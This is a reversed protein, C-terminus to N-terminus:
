HSIAPVGNISDLSHPRGRLGYYMTNNDLDTRSAINGTTPYYTQSNTKVLTGNTYVNWSTLRNLNDYAMSDMMKNNVNHIDKRSQLNGKSDFIYELDIIGTSKISKPLGLIDYDFSTERNGRNERKLQGKANEELPEWITIGGPDKVSTLLGNVDYQNVTYYGSPYGHKWERGLADYETKTTFSKAGVTETVQTVRDFDDYTFTQTNKGAISVSSIRKLADYAYSTTEGNRVTSQLLGTSGQYNNTTTILQANHMYRKTTDLEGFGNYSSYVTGADPDILKTRNGQKDYEMTLVQGGEPTASKTLGSAYYTYTVKKGNQIVYDTLGNNLLKKKVTDSPSTVTPTLGYTYYIFSIYICKVRIPLM